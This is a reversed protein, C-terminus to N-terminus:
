QERAEDGSTPAIPVRAGSLEYVDFSREPLALVGFTGVPPAPDRPIPTVGNPGFVAGASTQVFPPRGLVGPNAVLGGGPHRAVAPQHTHGVLLVDCAAEALLQRLEPLRLDEAYLGDMDSGPRAHHVAVRTGDLRLHLHTPLGELFAVAAGSLPHALHGGRAAALLWREHNGRICRVRHDVLFAILEEAPHAEDVFDGACLHVACGLRTALGHAARLADLDGHVDSYVAVTVTVTVSASAEAQSHREPNM